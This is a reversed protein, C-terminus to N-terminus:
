SNALIHLLTCYYAYIIALYQNEIQYMVTPPSATSRVGFKHM